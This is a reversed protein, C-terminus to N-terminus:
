CDERDIEISIYNQRRNNKGVKQEFDSQQQQQQQQQQHQQQQTISVGGERRM